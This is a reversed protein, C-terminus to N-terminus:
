DSCLSEGHRAKVRIFEFNIRYSCVFVCLLHNAACILKVRLEDAHIVFGGCAFNGFAAGADSNNRAAFYVRKRSKGFNINNHVTDAAKCSQERQKGCETCSFSNRKCIFFADNASMNNHVASESFEAPSYKRNVAFLTCNKLAKGCAALLINTRKNQCCGPTHEAVSRGILKGTYRRLPVGDGWM